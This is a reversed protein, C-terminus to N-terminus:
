MHNPPDADRGRDLMVDDINLSLVEDARMGTERLITSILRYPQSAASSLTNASLGRRHEADFLLADRESAITRTDQYPHLCTSAAM